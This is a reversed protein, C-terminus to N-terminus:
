TNNPVEATPMLLMMGLEGLATESVLKTIPEIVIMDGYVIEAVSACDADTIVLLWPRLETEFGELELPCAMAPVGAVDIGIETVIEVLLVEM